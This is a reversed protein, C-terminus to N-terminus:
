RRHNRRKEIQKKRQQLYREIMAEFKTRQEETLVNKIETKLESRITSVREHIHSKLEKLSEENDAFIQKIQEQQEASLELEKAMIELTPFEVPRRDRRSKKSKSPLIHKDLLVGAVGGVIFVVIFSLIIWLKYNNKM